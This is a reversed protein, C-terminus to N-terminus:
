KIEEYVYKTGNWRRRYKPSDDKKWRGIVKSDTFDPEFNEGYTRKLAAIKEARDVIPDELCPNGATVISIDGLQLSALKQGWAKKHQPAHYIQYDNGLLVDAMKTLGDDEDQINWVSVMDNAELQERTFHDTAEPPGLVKGDLHRYANAVDEDPQSHFGRTVTMGFNEKRPDYSNGCYRVRM